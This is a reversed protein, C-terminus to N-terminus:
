AAEAQDAPALLNGAADFAEPKLEYRIRLEHVEPIPNDGWMSISSHTKLGLATQLEKVSGFLAIAQNKTLM